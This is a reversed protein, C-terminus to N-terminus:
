SKLFRELAGGLLDHVDREIEARTPEWGTAALDEYKEALVKGVIGRSHSWKYVLQDLVRCDSHQPTMSLGILELRMRTMEEIISPNNLFWWCGFVHLNRFKRAAVCLEHQNERALMTVMFKNQPFQACLNEVAGIDALGLSDGALSLQPNVGRKVGIMLAFAQGLDRGHPLIAHEILRAAPTEAPFAFDPTLSVMCYQADIRKTWDALFRRVEGFTQGSFDARVDYGWAHLKPATNAWDLLLPDIRLAAAFRTDRTFGREWVPREIDDFPSNTMCIKRVNALEACKTVFDDVKWQAFQKRLAPLDRKKVDMGLLNLVTLVGRCAESIPSHQIFLQDWVLDAQQTKSLAWFKDYPMELYRFGEAILYHYVLLEDIGWLLLEGFAPDYLHTHIDYVPTTNVVDTVQQRLSLSQHM